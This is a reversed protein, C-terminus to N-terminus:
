PAVEKGMSGDVNIVGLYKFKIMQEMEKGSERVEVCNAKQSKGNLYEDVIHQPDETSEIIFLTSDVSLM